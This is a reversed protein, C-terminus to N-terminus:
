SCIENIKAILGSLSGCSCLHGQVPPKVVQEIIEMAVEEQLFRKLKIVEQEAVLARHCLVESQHNMSALEFGSLRTVSDAPTEIGDIERAITLAMGVDKQKVALVYLEELRQKKDMEM